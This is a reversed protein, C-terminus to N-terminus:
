LGLEGELYEWCARELRDPHEAGLMSRAVPLFLRACELHLAIASDRDAYLPPLSALREMQEAPLVKSLHM